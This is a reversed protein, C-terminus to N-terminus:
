SGKDVNVVEKNEGVDRGPIWWGASVVGRRRQSPGSTERADEGSIVALPSRLATRFVSESALTRVCTAFM